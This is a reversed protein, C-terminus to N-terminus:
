KVRGLGIMFAFIICIGGAAFWILNPYMIWVGYLILACGIIALLDDLYKDIRM